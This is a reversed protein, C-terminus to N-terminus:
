MCYQMTLDASNGSLMVDIKWTMNTMSGISFYEERFHYSGWLKHYHPFLLGASGRLCKLPQLSSSHKNDRKTSFGVFSTIDTGTSGEEIVTLCHRRWPDAHMYQMCLVGFMVAVPQSFLSRFFYSHFQFTKSAKTIPCSTAREKIITETESVLIVLYNWSHKWSHLMDEHIRKGYSKASNRLL